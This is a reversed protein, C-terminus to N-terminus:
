KQLYSMLPQKVGNVVYNSGGRGKVDEVMTTIVIPNSSDTSAVSLWGLETGTTDDQSDKIEGTGTKAALQYQSNNLAHATGNNDEVAQILDSKIEDTTEKSFPEAWVSTETSKVVHPTMMKGDNMLSSYISTMQVPNMLIQGQGYGSDAILIEDDFSDSTYQSKTLALEFPIDEGIM